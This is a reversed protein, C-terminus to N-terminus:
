DLYEGWRDSPETYVPKLECVKRIRDIPIDKMDLGMLISNSEDMGIEHFVPIDTGIVPVGRKLAEVASLCFGENDSLQVYADFMGLYDTINLRPPMIMMNREADHVERNTFVMWMFKVGAENLARALKKMRSWGKEQTLRTASVLFLPKEVEDLVVPEGIREADIGTLEKWGKCVRESVGLYKEVRSDIPLTSQQGREYMDKWDVHLVFYVHEAECQNLIDRRYCVFMRKCVVFDRPKIRICKVYKELRAIQKKDAEYYLVAFNGYKRALYYLHSETGGMKWITKMFYCNDLEYRMVRRVVM